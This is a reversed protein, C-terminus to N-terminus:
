ATAPSAGVFPKPADSGRPHHRRVVDVGDDLRRVAELADPRRPFRDPKADAADKRGVFLESLTPLHEVTM